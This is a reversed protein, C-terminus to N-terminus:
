ERRPPLAVAALHEAGREVLFAYGGDPSRCSALTLPTLPQPARGYCGVLRDGPMLTTRAGQPTEMVVLTSQALLVGHIKVGDFAHEVEPVPPAPPALEAALARMNEVREASAPHSSLFRITREGGAAMREWVRVAGYPDFGAAAAYRLGARDADREEERSFTTSVAQTAFNAMDAAGHGAGQSALAIALVTTGLLRLSERAMRSERHRLTLHAYEHGLVAAYGDEDDGLLEVMGLNLGVLPGIKSTPTSFANPQSGEVLVLGAAVGAAEELRTKAEVILRARSTSLGGVQTRNPGKYLTVAPAQSNAIEELRWMAPKQGLASVSTTLFLGLWAARWMGVLTRRAARRKLGM